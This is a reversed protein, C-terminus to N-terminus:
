FPDSVSWWEGYPHDYEQLADKIHVPNFSMYAACTQMTDPKDHFDEIVSFLGYNLRSRSGDEHYHFLGHSDSYEVGKFMRRKNMYEVIEEYNGEVNIMKM